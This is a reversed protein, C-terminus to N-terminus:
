KERLSLKKLFYVLHRSALVGSNQGFFGGLWGGLWGVVWLWFWFAGVFVGSVPWSVGGFAGFVWSVGPAALDSAGFPGLGFFAGWLFFSM